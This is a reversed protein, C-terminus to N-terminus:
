GPTRNRRTEIINPLQSIRGLLRGLADLGPIEITLSMLATNDEKNSRTNVALVNIRENLLVQSVDRLLGSRDYARIIIDVPYTLVPVPGWSVQIIREPERGALQLVSACDQRHISVGRGQTIYGVIADGPLPQCCGAMQTMLNGVGQIQIDGRKGPKYGTAKRPILELQENGREPEVLQQALNVLQALRLDGAGLAAFMDEATKMNAKEALKDFDVQPLGLRSLERELLTKGAAVNQDRAQL